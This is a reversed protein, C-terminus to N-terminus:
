LPPKMVNEAVCMYIHSVQCANALKRDLMDLKQRCCPSKTTNYSKQPNHFQKGLSPAFSHEAAHSASMRCQHLKELYLAHLRSYIFISSTTM